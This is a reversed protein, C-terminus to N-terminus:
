FIFFQFEVFSVSIDLIPSFYTMGSQADTIPQEGMYAQGPGKVAPNMRVLLKVEEDKCFQPGFVCLKPATSM